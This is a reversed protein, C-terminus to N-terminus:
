SIYNHSVHVMDFQSRHLDELNSGNVSVFVSQRHVTIIQITKQLIESIKGKERDCSVIM